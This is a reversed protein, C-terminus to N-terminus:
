LRRSVEANDNQYRDSTTPIFLNEEKKDKDRMAQM